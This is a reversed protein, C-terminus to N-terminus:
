LGAYYYILDTSPPQHGLQRMMSAIQGRHYTAHNAVHLAIQWLQRSHPEGKLNKFEIVEHPDRTKVIAEIGDLLPWWERNLDSLSPGPPADEFGKPAPPDQIRGLWVRDAYYTHQFTKLIGGHSNGIHSSTQEDPLTLAFELLKRSAWQSYSTHGALIAPTVEM